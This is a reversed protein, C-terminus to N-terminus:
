KDYTSVKSMNLFVTRFTNGMDLCEFPDDNYFWRYYKSAAHAGDFAFQANSAHTGQTQAGHTQAISLALLAAMRMPGHNKDGAALGWLAGACRDRASTM